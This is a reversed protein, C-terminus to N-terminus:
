VAAESDRHSSLTQGNALFTTQEFFTGFQKSFSFAGDRCLELYEPVPEIDSRVYKSTSPASLIYATGDSGSKTGWAAFQVRVLDYDEERLRLGSIEDIDVTVLVGNIVDCEDGTVFANLAASEKAGNPVKWATKFREPMEYNFVRKVGHVTVPQHDGNSKKALTKTASLSNMLSGYGIM